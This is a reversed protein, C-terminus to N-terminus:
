YVSDFFDQLFRNNDPLQPALVTFNTIYLIVHKEHEQFNATKETIQIKKVM